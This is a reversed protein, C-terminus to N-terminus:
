LCRARGMLPQLRELDPWHEPGLSGEPRHIAVVEASILVTGPYHALTGNRCEFHLACGNVLPAGASTGLAIALGAEALVEKGAGALLAPLWPPVLLAPPPLSVGFLTLTVPDLGAASRLGLSVTLLPQPACVLGLWESSWVRVGNDRGVLALLPSALQLATDSSTTANDIM